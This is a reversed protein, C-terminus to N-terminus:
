FNVFFFVFAYFVVTLILAILLPGKHFEWGFPEPESQDTEQPIEESPRIEEEPNM